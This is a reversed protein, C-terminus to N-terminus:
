QSMGFTTPQSKAKISAVGEKVKDASKEAAARVKEEARDAQDRGVLNQAEAEQKAAETAERAVSKVKQVTERGVERARSMAEDRAPGLHRDEYRSEPIAMGVIAGATLAVGAVALPNRELSRLFGEKAQRSSRVVRRQTQRGYDAASDAAERVKHKVQEGTEAAKERWQGGVDAAKRKTEDFRQRVGTKGQAGQGRRDQAAIGRRDIFGMGYTGSEDVIDVKRREEMRRERDEEDDDRRVGSAILWAMGGGMMVLPLPHDKITDIIAIGWRKSTEETQRIMTDAKGRTVQSVKEKAEEVLNSFSLRRELTNITQVTEERVSEIETRLKDLPNDSAFARGEREQRIISEPSMPKGIDATKDM